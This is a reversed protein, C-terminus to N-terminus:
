NKLIIYNKTILGDLGSNNIVYLADDLNQVVPYGHLNFSTNLLAGCKTIDKFTNILEYYDSNTKKELIQARVTKDAEHCAAKLNKFGLNTTKYSLSMRPSAETQGYMSYFKIGKKETFYILKKLLREDLKGGANAIFKFNKHYFQKFNLKDIIEFIYPVGYFCNPQYKKFRDWFKKELISSNNLIIKGGSILHTNIISSGYTYNMPLTTIVSNNKLELSSIIDKSNHIYNDYSLRVLKPSGTTGSTTLLLALKDSMLIKKNLIKKLYVYKKFNFFEKYGNPLTSTKEQVIYNPKYKSILNELFENNINKELLVVVSKERILGVYTALTEINNGTILFVLSRKNIKSALQDSLNIFEKYTFKDNDEIICIKNNYKLLSDFFSM